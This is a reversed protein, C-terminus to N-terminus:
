IKYNYDMIFQAQKIWYESSTVSVNSNTIKNSNVIINKIQKVTHESTSTNNFIKM